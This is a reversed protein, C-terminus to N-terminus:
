NTRSRLSQILKRLTEAADGTFPALIAKARDYEAEIRKKTEDIGYFTVYTLKDESRDKEEDLVDDTMQFLLGLSDGFARMAEAQGPDSLYAGATCAARFLAGTSVNAIGSYVVM